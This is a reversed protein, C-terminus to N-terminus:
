PIDKAKEFLVSSIVSRIIGHEKAAIGAQKKGTKGCVM